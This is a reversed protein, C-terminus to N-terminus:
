GSRSRWRPACPTMEGVWSCWWTANIRLTSTIGSAPRWRAEDHASVPRHHGAGPEDAALHAWALAAMSCSRAAEHSQIPRGLKGAAVVKGFVIANHDGNALLRHDVISQELGVLARL